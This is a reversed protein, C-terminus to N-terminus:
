FLNARMKGCIVVSALTVHSILEQVKIANVWNFLSDILQLYTDMRNMKM